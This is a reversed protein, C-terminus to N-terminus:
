LVMVVPAAPAQKCNWRMGIFRSGADVSMLLQHRMRMPPPSPPCEPTSMLLPRQLATIGARMMRDAM